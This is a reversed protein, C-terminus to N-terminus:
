SGARCSFFVGGAINDSGACPAVGSNVGWAQSSSSKLRCPSTEVTWSSHTSGLALKGPMRPVQCGPSVCPRSSICTSTRSPTSM